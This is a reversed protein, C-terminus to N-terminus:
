GERPLGWIERLDDLKHSLEEVGEEGDGDGFLEPKQGRRFIAASFKSKNLMIFTLYVLIRLSLPHLRNSLNARRPPRPARKEGRGLRQRGLLQHIMQLACM